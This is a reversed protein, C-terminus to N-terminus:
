VRRSTVFASQRRALGPDRAPGAHLSGATPAAVAGGVRAYITQYRERDLASRPDNEDRRIYPPLPVEGAAEIAANADGGEALLEVRWVDGDRALPVVSLARTVAIEVGARISKSGTLLARWVRAGDDSAAPDLLLIEVRGGTPKTGRLRAPLVKTDNFVLLDGAGLEGPLEAFRRHAVAGTGRDLVM